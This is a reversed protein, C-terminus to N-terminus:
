ESCASAWLSFLRIHTHPSTFLPLSGLAEMSEGHIRERVFNLSVMSEKVAVSDPPGRRSVTSTRPHLRDRHTQKSSRWRYLVNWRVPEVRRPWIGQICLREQIFVGLYHRLLSSGPVPIIGQAICQHQRVGNKTRVLKISPLDHHYRHICIENEGWIEPSIVWRDISQQSTSVRSPNGRCRRAGSSLWSLRSSNEAFSITQLTSLSDFSWVSALSPFRDGISFWESAM